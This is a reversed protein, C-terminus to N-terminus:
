IEKIFYNKNKENITKYYANSNCQSTSRKARFQTYFSPFMSEIRDLYTDMHEKTISVQSPMRNRSSM